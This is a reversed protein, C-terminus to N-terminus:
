QTIKYDYTDLVIEGEESINSTFINGKHFSIIKGDLNNNFLGKIEGNESLLLWREEKKDENEDEETGDDMLKMWIGNPLDCVISQVVPKIDPMESMIRQKESEGWFEKGSDLIRDVEMVKEEYSVKKVPQNYISSFVENGDDLNFVRFGLSDTRIHYLNNEYSCYKNMVHFKTTTEIMFNLEGMNATLKISNQTPFEIAEGTKEQDSLNLRQIQDIPEDENLMISKKLVLQGEDPLFFNGISSELSIDEVHEISNEFIKYLSIKKMFYDDVAILNSNTVRIRNSLNQIEGPGRGQIPQEKIHIGRNSLLHISLSEDDLVVIEGNEIVKVDIIDGFFFSDNSSISFLHNPVIEPSNEINVYNTDIEDAHHTCSIFSALFVIFVSKKLLIYIPYNKYNIKQM